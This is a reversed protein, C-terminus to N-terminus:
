KLRQLDKKAGEHTPNLQLTKQLEQIAEPKRNMKELVLALRWHADAHTPSNPEPELTLYKRFYKEARPLDSGDALLINGASYFPSFNDPANKEAQTLIADLEQWRKQRAFVVAQGGYGGTRDPELKLAERAHKEVLDYKKQRDSFYFNVLTMHISYSKPNAELAKLFLPEPSDTKKEYQNMRHQALYGRSPNIRQIEALYRRAEGKRGGIIWPAEMHWQMLGWRSDIDNPGLAAAAELESKCRRGLGLSREKGALECIAEAVQQRYEVSKPNQAAAREALTVADKYDRYAVRVQSLLFLAQADNPNAQVRSELAARARKWHGTLVLAEPSPDNVAAQALALWLTAAILRWAPVARLRM